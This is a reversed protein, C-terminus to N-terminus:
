FGLGLQVVKGGVEFFARRILDSESTEVVSARLELKGFGEARVLEEKDDDYDGNCCASFGVVLVMPVFGGFWQFLDCGDSRFGVVWDGSLCWGFAM